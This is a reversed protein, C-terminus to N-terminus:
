VVLLRCTHPRPHWFAYSASPQHLPAPPAGNYPYRAACHSSQPEFASPASTHGAQMCRNAPDRLSRTSTQTQPNNRHHAPPSRTTLPRTALRRACLPTAPGLLAATRSSYRSLLASLLFRCVPM